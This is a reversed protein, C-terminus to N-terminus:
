LENSGLYEGEQSEITYNHKEVAYGEYVEIIKKVEELNEARFVTSLYTGNKEVRVIWM